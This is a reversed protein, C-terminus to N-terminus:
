RLHRYMIRVMRYADMAYRKVLRRPEMLMRHLWELSLRQMWLPARRVKGSLFNISAGVCIGVGTSRGDDYIMQALVEQRPCGVALVVLEAPNDAVHELCKEVEAPRDIFGMPPNHHFFEVNPYREGMEQMEQANNGIVSVRWKKDDAMDMLDGTLDSGPIVEKVQVRKMRLLKSLVKSDCLHYRAKDYARRLQESRELQVVHSVNPTVIYSFAKQSSDVIESILESKSGNYFDIDFASVTCTRHQRPNAEKSGLSNPQLQYPM